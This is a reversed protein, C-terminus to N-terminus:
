TRQGRHEKERASGGEFDTEEDEDSAAPVSDAPTEVLADGDERTSMETGAVALERM